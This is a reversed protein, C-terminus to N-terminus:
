DDLLEIVKVNQNRTPIPPVSDSTLKRRSKSLLEDDETGGGDSGDDGFVAQWTGDLAVLVSKVHLKDESELQQRVKLLFGDIKLSSPRTDKGCIPCKWKDTDSPEPVLKCKCPAPPHDYCPQMGKSPRTDLWNDLDFCELHTCTAGRVPTTFTIASFPDTIDISLDKVV